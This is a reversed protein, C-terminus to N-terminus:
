PQDAGNVWAVVTVVFRDLCSRRSDPQCGVARPDDFHGVFVVPLPVSWGLQPLPREWNRDPGDFSVEVSPGVAPRSEMGNQRVLVVSEPLAMLWGGFSACGEIVPVLQVMPAPCSSLFPQQFWGAVAIASPDNKGQIVIADPVTMVAHTRAVVPFSASPAISSDTSGAFPGALRDIAFLAIVVSAIVIGAAPLLARRDHEM